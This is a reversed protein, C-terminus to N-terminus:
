GLHIANGNITVTEQTVIATNKSQAYSSGEVLTHSKGAHVSLLDSVRQHLSAFTQTVRDAIMRLKGTHVELEASKLRIGKEASLDLSGGAHLGVDGPLAFVSRGTGHLVGIVYHAAGRAIVLLVDGQAPEYPFALALEARVAAGGGPVDVYVDHGVVRVVEAPGLYEEARASAIRESIRVVSSSM